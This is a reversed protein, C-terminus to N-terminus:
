MLLMASFEYQFFIFTSGALITVPVVLSTEWTLRYLSVQQSVIFEPSSLM